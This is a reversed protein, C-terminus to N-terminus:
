YVYPVQFVATNSVWKNVKRTQDRTMVVPLSMRSQLIVIAAKTHFNKWVILV